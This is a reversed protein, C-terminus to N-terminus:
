NHMKRKKGNRLLYVRKAIHRTHKIDKGSNDMCSTSTIDLIVLPAEEPLIDKDKNLIGHILIRLHALYM